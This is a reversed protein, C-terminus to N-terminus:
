FHNITLQAIVTTSNKPTGTLIQDTKLQPYKLSKQYSSLRKSNSIDFNPYM